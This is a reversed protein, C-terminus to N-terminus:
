LCKGVFNATSEVDNTSQLDRPKYKFESTLFEFKKWDTSRPNKYSKVEGPKVYLVHFKFCPIKTGVNEVFPIFSEELSVISQM